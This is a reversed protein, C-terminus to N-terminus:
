LGRLALQLLANAAKSAMQAANEPSGNTVVAVALRRSPQLMVTTYFTGASGDHGSTPVGAFSFIGWGLAYGSTGGLPPTHLRLFTTDQVIADVGLLGRLHLQVFRAYDVVSMNVDGAPAIIAPLRYGDSPDHATMTGVRIWHGSPQLPDTDTPWGFEGQIALPTFLLTRMLTEWSEGTVREAMAAAVGYGANSYRYVGISSAPAGRLLYSTFSRRQVSASGTFSPAAAIESSTTYPAIGARHSLIQTLTVSRFSANLSDAMEPFVSAPTSGWSLLGREVLVAIITATMAKANSGIHFRDGLAASTPQGVRRLGVVSARISDTWIIAGGIAPLGYREGIPALVSDIATRPNLLRLPPLSRPATADSCGGLAAALMAGAVLATRSSFHTM